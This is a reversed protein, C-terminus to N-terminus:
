LLVRECAILAIDIGLERELETYAVGALDRGWRSLFSSPLILLDPSGHAEAHERVAAAVDELVWLDGVDVDGGFFRNEPVLVEVSAGEPLPLKALLGGVLERYHPSALVVTRLATRGQIAEHIQKVYQLRFSGPLVLGFRMGPFDLGAYGKPRYPYADEGAAPEDLHMRLRRGAREVEVDVARRQAARDLLSGAHARSVVETDDVATLRDGLRLGALAAPSRRIVGEVLPALSSTVHAYPSILIPTELYARVRLVEAVVQPHWEALVNPRYSPHHRSLGPMSVRIFRAEQRDLFELTEALDDLGQDPWPVLTGMFPIQSARLFEVAEIAQRSRPDRMILRRTAPNASILSLNVYVPALEALREIVEPSLGAGNTTVDILQDADHERVAAMLSLYDPNALPEFFGKSERPLGRGDHLYRRRTRAEQMGVFRPEKTFLGPPNGDEYCFRCHCNCVTSLSGLNQQLSTERVTRWADLDRLRFGDVQVPQGEFELEILPLLSRLMAEILEVRPEERAFAQM